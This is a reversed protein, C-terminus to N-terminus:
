CKLHRGNRSLLPHTKKLSCQWFSRPELGASVQAGYGFQFVGRMRDRSEQAIAITTLFGMMTKRVRHKGNDLVGLYLRM